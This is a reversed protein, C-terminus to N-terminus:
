KPYRLWPSRSLPRSDPNNLASHSNVNKPMRYKERITSFEHDSFVIRPDGEVSGQKQEPSQTDAADKKETKTSLHRPLIFWQPSPHGYNIDANLLRSFVANSYPRIPSLRPSTYLLPHLMPLSSNDFPSYLTM